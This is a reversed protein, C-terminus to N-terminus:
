RRGWVSSRAYGCFRVPRFYGARRKEHAPWHGFQDLTTGPMYGLGSISDGEPIAAWQSLSVAPRLLGGGRMGLALGWRYTFERADVQGMGAVAFGPPPATRLDLFGRNGTPRLEPFVLCSLGLYDVM